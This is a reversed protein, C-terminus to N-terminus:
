PAALAEDLVARLRAESISGVHTRRLRGDRGIVFLTPLVRGKYFEFTEADGLVVHASLKPVRREVFRRVDNAATEPADLSAAVLVVGKDAYAEAVRVLMPMEEVCPPCWTAWFDLLVVRGSLSALSVEGPTLVRQFRFAPAPEGPPSLRADRAEQVGRLLILGIGLGLAGWALARGWERRTTEGM